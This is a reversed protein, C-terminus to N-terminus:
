ARQMLTWLHDLRLDALSHLVLDADLAGAPYSTAVAITRLGAARASELGWHSDEIAVSPAANAALVGQHRLGALAAVYPDPAPKGRATEGAAVIVPFRERVAAADLVCEIEGRLAGSAIALPVVAALDVICRVAGPFLISPDALLRPM